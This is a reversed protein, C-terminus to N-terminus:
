LYDDKEGKNFFNKIINILDETCKRCLDKQIFLENYESFSEELKLTINQIHQDPSNEKTIELIEETKCLDCTLKIIKKEELM